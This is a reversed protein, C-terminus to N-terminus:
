YTPGDLLWTGNEKTIFFQKIIENGDGDLCTANVSVYEYTKKVINSSVVTLQGLIDLKEYKIDTMLKGDIVKYRPSVNNDLLGDASTATLGVFMNVYIDELYRKSYIQEAVAKMQPISFYASKETDVEVYQTTNTSPEYNVTPLGDGFFLVNIEYSLPVLEKLVNFADEESIELPKKKNACSIVTPIILVLTIVFILLRKM